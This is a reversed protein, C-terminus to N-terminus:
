QAKNAKKNEHKSVTFYTEVIQHLMSEILYADVRKKFTEATQLDKKPSLNNNLHISGPMMVGHIEKTFKINHVTYTIKNIVGDIMIKDLKPESKNHLLTEIYVIVNKANILDKHVVPCV